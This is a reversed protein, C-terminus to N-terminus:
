PRARIMPMSVARMLSSNFFFRMTVTAPKWPTSSTPLMVVRPRPPESVVATAM